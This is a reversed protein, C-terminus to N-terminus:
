SPARAFPGRKRRLSVKPFPSRSGAHHGIASPCQASCRSTAPDVLSTMAALLAETRAPKQVIIVHPYRQELDLYGTYFMFPVQSEALRRCLPEVDVGLLVYDLVAACIQHQGMALLGQKCTSATIVHAGASEFLDMLNLRILPEDEVVLISRGRLLTPSEM